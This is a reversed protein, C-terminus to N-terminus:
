ARQAGGRRRDRARASGPAGKHLERHERLATLLFMVMLAKDDLNLDNMELVVPHRFLDEPSPESRRCGFMKGKGGILLPKFRGVLAAQLNSLLEGRYGRAAIIREIEGVFEVLTPFERRLPQGAAPQDTLSFGKSAYVEVLAEAIISTSPGVQPVAAEFCTQLRSVHAEVRVGPQLEFPNLRLPVCTENGLTYIRVPEPKSRIAPVTCLCRYEQKASELVLFPVDHDAWLQHVLQLVTWTKGSGTFGTVLVHRTLDDVPVSALGGGEFRGLEISRPPLSEQRPGPQFDPPFQRVEIGPVGGRVSVPLRFMTTAGRADVLLPFRDLGQDSVVWAL